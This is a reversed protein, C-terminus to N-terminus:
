GNFMFYLKFKIVHFTNALFTGKYLAKGGYKDVWSYKGKGNLEANKFQGIYVRGDPWRFEGFDAIQSENLAGKFLYEEGNYEWQKFGKGTANNKSIFFGHIM